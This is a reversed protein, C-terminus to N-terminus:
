RWFSTVVKGWGEERPMKQLLSEQDQHSLREVVFHKTSQKSSCSATFLKAVKSKAVFIFRKLDPSTAGIYILDSGTIRAEIM